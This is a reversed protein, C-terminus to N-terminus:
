RYPPCAHACGKAEGGINIGTQKPEADVIESYCLNTCNLRNEAAM